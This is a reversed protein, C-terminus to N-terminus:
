SLGLFHASARMQEAGHLTPYPGFVRPQRAANGVPRAPWLVLYFGPALHRWATKVADHERLAASLHVINANGIRVVETLWKRM